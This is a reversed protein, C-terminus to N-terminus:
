VHARGIENLEMRIYKRTNPGYVGDNALAAYMSQFRRVADQTNPGYIGDIEGSDFNIEKLARQVQKVAEGEYGQTLVKDPLPFDIAPSSSGLVEKLKSLTNPGVLGDVHLGYASQFRMVARQTEEGYVGDAGFIPLPFGAQTLDQQVEKVFQGEDGIDLPLEVSIGKVEPEAPEVTDGNGSFETQYVEKVDRIFKGWSIGNQHLANQPDTRRQPDLTSHAVIDKDPDLGYKDVLYAHYWVYRNYAEQFDINSGYALEVGIAADNADEDYLTNDKATNSRVHWAKEDLPIIELIYNDDIFTHASALPQVRDFYNRNNYATSGPNGTDHSVIYEVNQLEEGSRSDGYEIYDRTINYKAM